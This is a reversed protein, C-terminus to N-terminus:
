AQPETQFQRANDLLCFAMATDSRSQKYDRQKAAKRASAIWWEADRLLDSYKRRNQKVVDAAMRGSSAIVMGGEMRLGGLCTAEGAESRARERTRVEGSSPLQQVM